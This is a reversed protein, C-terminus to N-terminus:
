RIPGLRDVAAREEAIRDGEFRHPLTSEVAERDAVGGPATPDHARFGPALVDDLVDLRGQTWGEGCARRVIRLLRADSAPPPTDHM